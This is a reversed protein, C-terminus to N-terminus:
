ERESQYAIPSCEGAILRCFPTGTAYRIGNGAFNYNLAQGRPWLLRVHDANIELVM